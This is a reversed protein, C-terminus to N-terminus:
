FSPIRTSLQFPKSDIARFEGHLLLYKRATPHLSLLFDVHGTRKHKRIGFEERGQRKLRGLREKVDRCLLM